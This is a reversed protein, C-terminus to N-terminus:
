STDKNDKWKQKNIRYVFIDIDKWQTQKEKKLGNKEAVRQSNFNRIDIIFIINKTLDHEFVYDMFLRAAEPAYGKVRYQKM